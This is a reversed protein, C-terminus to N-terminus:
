SIQKQITQSKSFPFTPFNATRILIYNLEKFYENIVSPPFLNQFFFNPSFIHYNFQNISNFKDPLIKLGVGIRTRAFQGGFIDIYTM